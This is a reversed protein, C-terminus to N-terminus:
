RAGRIHLSQPKRANHSQWIDGLMINILVFTVMLLLAQNRATYEFLVTEIPSPQINGQKDITAQTLEPFSAIISKDWRKTLLYNEATFLVCLFIIFLFIIIPAPVKVIFMLKAKLRAFWITKFIKLKKRPKKEKTKVYKKLFNLKM